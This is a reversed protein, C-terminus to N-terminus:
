RCVLRKFGFQVHAPIDVENKSEPDESVWFSFHAPSFRLACRVLLIVNISFTVDLHSSPKLVFICTRVTFHTWMNGIHNETLSTIPVLLSEHMIPFTVFRSFVFYFTCKPLLTNNRITQGRDASNREHYSNIAIIILKWCKFVIFERNSIVDGQYFYSIHQSVQSSHALM